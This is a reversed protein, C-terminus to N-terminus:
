PYKSLQMKQKKKDIVKLGLKQYLDIAISRLFNNMLVTIGDLIFVFLMYYGLVESGFVSITLGRQVWGFLGFAFTGATM